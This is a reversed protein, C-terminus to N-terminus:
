RRATHLSLWQYHDQNPEHHVTRLARHVPVEVAAEAACRSGCLAIIMRTLEVSLGILEAASRAEIFGLDRALYLQSRVEGASGKAIMLFRAFEANSEREFGEAINSM